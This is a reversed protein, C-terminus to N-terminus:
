LPALMRSGTLLFNSDQQCYCGLLTRLQRDDQEGAMRIKENNWVYADIKQKGREANKHEM